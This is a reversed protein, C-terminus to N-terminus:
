LGQDIRSAFHYAGTEGCEADEVIGALLQSAEEIRPHVLLGHGANPAPRGATARQPDHQAVGSGGPQGVKLAVRVEGAQGGTM